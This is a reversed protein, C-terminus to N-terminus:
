GREDREAPRDRSFGSIAWGIGSLLGYGVLGGVGLLIMPWDVKPQGFTILDSIIRLNILIVFPSLWLLGLRHFGRRIRAGYGLDVAAEGLVM